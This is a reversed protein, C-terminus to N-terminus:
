AKDFNRDTARDAASQAARPRKGRMVAYVLVGLLVLAGVGYLMEQFGM